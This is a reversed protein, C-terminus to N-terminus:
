KLVRKLVDQVEYNHKLENLLDETKDLYACVLNNCLTYYKEEDFFFDEDDYILEMNFYIDLDIIREFIVESEAAALFIQNCLDESIKNIDISNVINNITQISQMVKVTYTFDYTKYFGKQKKAMEWVNDKGKKYKKYKNNLSDWVNRLENFDQCNMRAALDKKCKFKFDIIKKQKLDNDQYEKVQENWWANIDNEM